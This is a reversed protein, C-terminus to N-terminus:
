TVPGATVRSIAAALTEEVSLESSDLVIWDGLDMSELLEYSWAAAGSELFFADWPGAREHMRRRLVDFSPKLALRTVLPDDLLAVYHDQFHGPVCVDDIVFHIGDSSYERALYTAAKRARRFQAEAEDTWEGPPEFGNVMMERLDDVNLHVSKPFHEAIGRAITSKGSGPPGTVLIIHGTV